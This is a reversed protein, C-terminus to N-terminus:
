ARLGGGSRRRQRRVTPRGPATVELRGARAPRPMGHNMMAPRSTAASLMRPGITAGVGTSRSMSASKPIPDAVAPSSVVAGTSINASSVGSAASTIRRAPASSASMSESLPTSSPVTMRAIGPKPQISAPINTIPAATVIPLTTIGTTMRRSTGGACTPTIVAAYTAVSLAPESIVESSVAGSAASIPQGAASSAHDTSVTAPM